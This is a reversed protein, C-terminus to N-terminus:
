SQRFAFRGGMCRVAVPPHVKQEVPRRACALALQGAVDGAREVPFQDALARAIKEVGIHSHRLPIQCLGKELCLGLFRNKHHVLHIRDERASIPSQPRGRCASRPDEPPLSQRGQTFVRSPQVPRCCRQAQFCSPYSILLGIGTLSSGRESTSPDQV